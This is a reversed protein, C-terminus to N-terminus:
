ARAPCYWDMDGNVGDRRLSAHIVVHQYQEVVKPDPELPLNLFVLVPAIAIALLFAWFVFKSFLAEAAIIFNIKLNGTSNELAKGNKWATLIANSYDVDSHNECNLMLDDYACIKQNNSLEHSWYIKQLKVYSEKFREAREQHREGQLYLSIILVCVSCCISLVGFYKVKYIGSFDFISSVILLLSYWTIMMNCYKGDRRLRKESEMRSKSTLYINEVRRADDNTQTPACM